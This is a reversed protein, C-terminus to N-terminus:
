SFCIQKETRWSFRLVSSPASLHIVDFVDSEVNVPIRDRRRHKIPATPQDLLRHQHRPCRRNQIEDATHPTSQMHGEFFPCM